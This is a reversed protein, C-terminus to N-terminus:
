SILGFQVDVYHRLCFPKTDLSVDVCTIDMADVTCIVICEGEICLRVMYQFPINGHSWSNAELDSGNSRKSVKEKKLKM